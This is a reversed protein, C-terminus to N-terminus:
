NSLPSLLYISLLLLMFPLYVLIFTAGLDVIDKEFGFDYRFTFLEGVVKLISLPSKVGGSADLEPEYVTCGLVGCTNANASGQIGDILCLNESSPTGDNYYTKNITGTCGETTDAFWWFGTTINTWNCGAINNCVNQSIVGASIDCDLNDLDFYYRSGEGAQTYKYRPYDCYVDYGFTNDVDVDVTTNGGLTQGFENALDEGYTLTLIFFLYYIVLGLFLLGGWTKRDM